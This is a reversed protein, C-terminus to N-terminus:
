RQGHRHQGAALGQCCRPRPVGGATTGRRSAPRQHCRQAPLQWGSTTTLNPIRQHPPGAREAHRHRAPPRRTRSRLDTAADLVHLCYHTL